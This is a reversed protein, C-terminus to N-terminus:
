RTTVGRRHANEHDRDPAGTVHVRMDADSQRKLAAAVVHGHERARVELREQRPDAQRQDRDARHVVVAPGQFMGIEPAGVAREPHDPLRNPGVHRLDGAHQPLLRGATGREQHRVGQREPRAGRLLGQARRNTVSCRCAAPKTLRCSVATGCTHSRDTLRQGSGSLRRSTAAPSRRDSWASVGTTFSSHASNPSGGARFMTRSHHCEGCRTM